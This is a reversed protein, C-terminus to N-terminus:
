LSAVGPLVTKGFRAIAEGQNTCGPIGFALDLIGVGADRVTAIKAKVTEPGGFLFPKFMANAAAAPGGMEQGENRLKATEGARAAVAADYEETALADTDGVHAIHRYLVNDATPTWGHKDAESKYLEVWKKVVELTAFSIAISLKRQAAFAISEDSNGSGFVLPHPAQVPRPWISIHDFQYEKGHWNTADPTTWAKLILDIGEQTMSRSREVVNQYTVQENPTGRLFLVIIRGGSLCDVMALEEAVRVPNNLPLIPGLVAIKVRSTAQSLAGAMVLPNPTLSIPGYHHESVSVWDFGSAEAIKANNLAGMLSRRATERDCSSSPM